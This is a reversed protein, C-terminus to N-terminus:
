PCVVHLSWTGSPQGYVATVRRATVHGTQTPEDVEGAGGLSGPAQTYMQTGLRRVLALLLALVLAWVFM